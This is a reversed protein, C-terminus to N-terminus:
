GASSHRCMGCVRSKVPNRPSEREARADDRASSRQVPRPERSPGRGGCPEWPTGATGGSSPMPPTDRDEPPSPGPSLAAARLFTQRKFRGSPRVGPHLLPLGLGFAVGAPVAAPPLRGALIRKEPLAPTPLNAM